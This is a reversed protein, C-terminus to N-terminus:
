LQFLGSRHTLLHEVTTRDAHTIKPFWESLRDDYRLRGEAVLQLVMIATVVKGVSAWYFVTESTVPAHTQRSVVGTDLQRFGREPALVAVSLGAVDLRSMVTDFDDRLRAPVEASFNYASADPLHSADLPAHVPNSRYADSTPPQDRCSQVVLLMLLSINFLYM